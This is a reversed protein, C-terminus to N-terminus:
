VAGLEGPLEWGGVCLVMGYGVTVQKTCRQEAFSFGLDM